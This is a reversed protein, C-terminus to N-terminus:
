LLGAFKVISWFSDVFWNRSAPHVIGVLSISGILAFVFTKGPSRKAMMYCPAIEPDPKLARVLGHDGSHESRFETNAKVQGNLTTLQSNIESLERSTEQRLNQMSKGLTDQKGEIRELTSMLMPWAKDDSM